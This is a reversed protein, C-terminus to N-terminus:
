SLFIEADVQNSYGSDLKMQKWATEIDVELVLPDAKSRGICAFPMPKGELLVFTDQELDVNDLQEIWIGLKGLTKLTVSLKLRPKPTANVSAPLQKTAEDSLITIDQRVIAVAGTMKGVFGLNALTFSKGSRDLNYPGHVPRLTFLQWDHSGVTVGFVATDAKTTRLRACQGTRHSQLVHDSAEEVGM